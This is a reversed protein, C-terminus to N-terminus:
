ASIRKLSFSPSFNELFVWSYRYSLNLGLNMSQSRVSVPLYCHIFVLYTILSISISKTTTDGILLASVVQLKINLDCLLEGLICTSGETLYTKLEEQSIPPLSISLM